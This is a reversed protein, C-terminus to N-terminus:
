SPQNCREDETWSLKVPAVIRQSYAVSMIRLQSQLTKLLIDSFNLCGM